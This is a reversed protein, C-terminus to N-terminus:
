KLRLNTIMVTHDHRINGFVMSIIAHSELGEGNKLLKTIIGQEGARTGQIIRVSEGIKFCKQVQYQRAKVRLPKDEETEFSVFGNSIHQIIGQCNKFQGEIVKM